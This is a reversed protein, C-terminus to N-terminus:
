AAVRPYEHLLGLCASGIRAQERLVAVIRGAPDSLFVSYRKGGHTVSLTWGEPIRAEIEERTEPAVTYWRARTYTDMRIM